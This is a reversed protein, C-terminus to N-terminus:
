VTEPEFSRETPIGKVWIKNSEIKIVEVQGGPDLFEGKTFVELREGNLLATGGPRLASVAEGITGVSIASTDVVNVKSDIQDHVAFKKSSLRRIGLWFVLLSAVLSSLFLVNGTTYGFERYGFYVGVAICLVGLVGAVTLGPFLFFETFLCFLGVLILLIVLTITM